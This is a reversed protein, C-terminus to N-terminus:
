PFQKPSVPKQLKPPHMPANLPTPKYKIGPSSSSMRTSVYNSLQSSPLVSFLTLRHFLSCALLNVMMVSVRNEGQM